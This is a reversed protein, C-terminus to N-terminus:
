ENDCGYSCSSPHLGGVFWPIKDGFNHLDRHHTACLPVAWQDGVKRGLARPQTFRVHHPHAPKRGCIICARAAVLKLHEKDRIRKPASIPLDSKDVAESSAVAVTGEFPLDEQDGPGNTPRELRAKYADVLEVSRFRGDEAM